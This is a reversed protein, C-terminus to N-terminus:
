TSAKNAFPLSNSHLWGSSTRAHVGDADASLQVGVSQMQRFDLGQDALGDFDDNLLLLNRGDGRAGSVPVSSELGNLFQFVVVEVSASSRCGLASSRTSSSRLM